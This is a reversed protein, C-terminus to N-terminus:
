ANPAGRVFFGIAKKASLPLVFKEVHFVQDTVASSDITGAASYDVDVGAQAATPTNSCDVEFRVGDVPICSLLTAGDTAAATVTEAAVYYTDINSGSTQIDAYGSTNLIADGKTFAVSAKAPLFVRKGQENTLARYAM